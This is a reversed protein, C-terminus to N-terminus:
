IEKIVGYLIDSNAQQLAVWNTKGGIHKGIRRHFILWINIPHQCESTGM